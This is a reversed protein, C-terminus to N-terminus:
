TSSNPIIGYLRSMCYHSAHALGLPWDVETRYIPASELLGKDEVEMPYEQIGYLDIGLSFQVFYISTSEAAGADELTETTTIIETTQDAKCGIDVLRCSGYMDVERDFMDMANNLLKEKRLVARLALLMTDNMFAIQPRHGMIAYKAADLRNLFNFSEASSLLIGDGATGNNDLYQNTYGDAYEDNIRKKIGNFGKVDVEVKDGNIFNDNFNYAMAKLMMVQVLARADATTNKARLIAKDTDFYRGMLAIHETKSELTGTGSSYGENVNRFGITPLTGLQVVDTSLSNTTEWPIFQMIDCEWLLGDIISKRLPDTEIQSLQALTFEGAM